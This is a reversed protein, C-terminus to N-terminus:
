VHPSSGVMFGLFDLASEKRGLHSQEEKKGIKKEAKAITAADTKPEAALAISTLLSALLFIVYLFAGPGFMGAAKFSCKLEGVAPKGIVYIVVPKADYTNKIGM